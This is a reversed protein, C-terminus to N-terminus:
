LKSSTRAREENDYEEEIIWPHEPLLIVVIFL